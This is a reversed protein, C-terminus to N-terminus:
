SMDKEACGQDQAACYQLMVPLLTTCHLLLHACFVTLCTQKEGLNISSFHLSALTTFILTLYFM